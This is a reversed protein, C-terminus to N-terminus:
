ILFSARVLISFSLMNLGFNPSFLVGLFPLVFNVYLSVFLWIISNHYCFYRPFPRKLLCFLGKGSTFKFNQLNHNRALSFLSM